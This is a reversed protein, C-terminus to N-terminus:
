FWLHTGAALDPAYGVLSLPMSAAAGLSAIVGDIQGNTDFQGGDTLQFDLRTKGGETTVQGGYINSALNVWTGATNLTWYGNVGLNADVYLSFTETVVEGNAGSSVTSSFSTLGLPMKIVPSLNTPASLEQVNSLTASNSDNTDIKGEKSDAVLTTYVSTTNLFSVLSTVNSQLRDAIGDGNGDGVVATMGTTSVLGPITDEM